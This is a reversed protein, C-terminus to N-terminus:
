LKEHLLWLTGAWMLAIAPWDLIPPLFTEIAITLMLVAFLILLAIIIKM